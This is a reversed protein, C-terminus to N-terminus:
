QRKTTPKVYKSKIKKLYKKFELPSSHPFSYSCIRNRFIRTISKGQDVIKEAHKTCPIFGGSWSQKYQGALHRKWHISTNTRMNNIYEKTCCKPYGLFIGVEIVHEEATLWDPKVCFSCDCNTPKKFKSM